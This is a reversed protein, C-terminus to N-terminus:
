RHFRALRPKGPSKKPHPARHGPVPPAPPAAAAAAPPPPAAASSAAPASAAADQAPAPAIAGSDATEPANTPAPSAPSAAVSQYAPTPVPPTPLAVVTPPPIPTPAPQDLPAIARQPGLTAVSTASDPRALTAGPAATQGGASAEPWHRLLAVGGVVLPFLLALPLVLWARDRGVGFRPWPRALWGTAGALMGSHAVPATAALTARARELARRLDAATQYRQAPDRALAKLVISETAASLAPRLQRPPRPTGHLHRALIATTTTGDFPAQGTLLEYLVVGLSYLDSRADAEQGQLQEPAIYRASGLVVRSETIPVESAARAIGFDTLKARGQPDVLVNHPKMDRHVLGHRHAAELGAAIQSALDLAQDEPLPGQHSLLESLNSGPVYEMVLYYTGDQEGWDYIAVVNPHNVAAAAQAERKFREVFAPDAAYAPRLRKIAVPRGLPRDVGAFVDAMGGAGIQRGLEYRGRLIAGGAVEPQATM